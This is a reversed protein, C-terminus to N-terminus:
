FTQSAILVKSLVATDLDAADSTSGYDDDDAPLVLSYMETTGADNFLVYVTNGIYEPVYKIELVNDRSDKVYITIPLSTNFSAGTVDQFAIKGSVSSTASKVSVGSDVTETTGPACADTYPVGLESATSGDGAHEIVISGKQAAAFEFSVLDSANGGGFYGTGDVACIKLSATSGFTIADSTCFELTTANADMRAVFVSDEALTSHQGKGLLSEKPLGNFVFMGVTDTDAPTISVGSTGTAVVNPVGPATVDVTNTTITESKYGIGDSIIVEIGGSNLNAVEYSSLNGTYEGDDAASTLTIKTGGVNAYVTVGTTTSPLGTVNLVINGTVNNVVTEDESFHSTYTYSEGGTSTANLDNTGTDEELYVWYGARADISFLNFDQNDYWTDVDRSVDISDWAITGASLDTNGTILAKAEFGLEKITYLPGDIGFDPTYVANYKLDTELNGTLATLQGASANTNSDTADDDTMDTVGGGDNGATTVSFVGYGEVTISAAALAAVIAGDDTETFDHSVTADLAAERVETQICTVMQDFATTYEAATAGVNFGLATCVTAAGLANVDFSVTDAAGDDPLVTVPVNVTYQEVSTGALSDISAVKAIAGQVIESTITSDDELLDKTVTDTDYVTFEATDATASVLTIVDGTTYAFIGTETSEDALLNIEDRTADADAGTAVALNDTDGGAIGITEAADFTHQNITRTFTHDRVYFPKDSALLIWDANDAALGNFDVDLNTSLGVGNGNSATSAAALATDFDTMANATGTPTATTSNDAALYVLATEANIQVAASRADLTNDADGNLTFVDFDLEAATDAGLLPEVAMVYEGYVSVAEGTAGAGVAGITVANRANLAPAWPLLGALTTAAGLVTSPGAEALTFKKNSIFALQTDTTRFARLDFTDSFEGREQAQEVAMNILAAAEEATTPNAIAVSVSNVGTSDYILISDAAAPDYTVLLGTSATRILPKGSDFSMLNWGVNLTNNYDDNTIGDDGILLGAAHADLHDATNDGEMDLRGWYAKGEQLSDFDNADVTNATDYILWNSTNSDYSYMRLAADTDATQDRVFDYSTSLKPNDSFDFDVADAIDSLQDTGATSGKAGTIAPNDYTRSGDLTFEHTVDTISNMQIEVINGEMSSKYTVMVNVVDNDDMASIFMTRYSEEERWVLGTTDTNILVNTVSVGTLGKIEMMNGTGVAIGVSAVEDITADELSDYNTGTSFTSSSGGFIGDVGIMKWAYDDTDTAFPVYNSTAANGMSSIALVAALSILTKKYSFM